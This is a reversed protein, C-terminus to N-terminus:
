LIRNLFNGWVDNIKASDITERIKRGYREIDFIDFIDATEVIRCMKKSGADIDFEFETLKEQVKDYLIKSRIRDEENLMYDFTSSVVYEKRKKKHVSEAEIRKAELLELYKDDLKCGQFRVNIEGFDVLSDTEIKIVPNDLGIFVINRIEIGIKFVKGCLYIRDIHSYLLSELEVQNMAVVDINDLVDKDDTFQRIIKRREQQKALVSVNVLHDSKDIGIGLVECLETLVTEGSANITNIKALQEDYHRDSLWTQLKGSLWHGILKEADFKEQLEELTRVMVSDKM